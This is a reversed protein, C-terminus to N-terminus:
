PVMKAVESLHAKSLGLKGALYYEIARGAPFKFIQGQEMLHKIVAKGIEPSNAVLEGMGTLGAAGGAGALPAAALVTAAKGPATAVEKNIQDQTTARGQQAARAMTDSFSEGPKPVIVTNGVDNTMQGSHAAAAEAKESALPEDFPNGTPSLKVTAAQAVQHEDIESQLPRDFPNDSM